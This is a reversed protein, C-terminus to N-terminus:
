SDPDDSAPSLVRFQKSRHPFLGLIVITEDSSEAIVGQGRVIYLTAMRNVNALRLDAEFVIEIRDAVFMHDGIRLECRDRYSITQRATGQDRLRRPSDLHMVRM